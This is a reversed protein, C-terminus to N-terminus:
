AYTAVSFKFHLYGWNLLAIPTVYLVPNQLCFSFILYRPKNTNKANIVYKFWSNPYQSLYFITNLKIKCM